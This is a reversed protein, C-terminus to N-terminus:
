QIPIVSVNDVSFGYGADCSIVLSSNTYSNIDFSVYHSHVGGTDKYTISNTHGGLEIRITNTYILEPLYEADYLSGVDLAIRYTMGSVSGIDQEVSAGPDYLQASGNYNTSGHWGAVGSTNWNNMEETFDWNAVKNHNSYYWIRNAIVRPIELDPFFSLNQHIDEIQAQTYSGTSSSPINLIIQVDLSALTAMDTYGTKYVANTFARAYFHANSINYDCFFYYPIKVGLALIDEPILSLRDDALQLIQAYNTSSWASNINNIFVRGSEPTYEDASGNLGSLWVYCVVLVVRGYKM